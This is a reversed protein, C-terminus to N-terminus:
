FKMMFLEKVTFRVGFKTSSIMLWDVDMGQQPILLSNYEKELFKDEYFNSVNLLSKGPVKILIIFDM